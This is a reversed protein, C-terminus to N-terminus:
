HVRQCADGLGLQSVDDQERARLRTRDAGVVHGAVEADVARHRAAPEVARV